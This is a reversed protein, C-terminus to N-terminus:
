QLVAVCELQDPYESPSPWSLRFGSSEYQFVRYPRGRFIGYTAPTAFHENGWSEAMQGALAAHDPQTILTLRGERRTVLM